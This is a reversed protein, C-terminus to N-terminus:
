DIGCRILDDLEDRHLSIPRPISIAASRRDPGGPRAAKLRKAAEAFERIGKDKLLRAIM